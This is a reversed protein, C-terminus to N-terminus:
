VPSSLGKESITSPDSGWGPILGPGCQQSASASGILWSLVWTVKHFLVYFGIFSAFSTLVRVKKLKKKEPQIMSTSDCPKSVAVIGPVRNKIHCWIHCFLHVFAEDSNSAHQSVRGVLNVVFHTRSVDGNKVVTSHKM